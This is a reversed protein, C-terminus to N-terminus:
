LRTFSRKCAALASLDDDDGEVETSCDGNLLPDGKAGLCGVQFSNAECVCIELLWDVNWCSRSRSTVAM